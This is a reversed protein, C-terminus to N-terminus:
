SYIWFSALPYFLSCTIRRPLKWISSLLSLYASSSFLQVADLSSIARWLLEGDRHPHSALLKIFARSRHSYTLRAPVSLGASSVNDVFSSVTSSCRVESHVIEGVNARLMEVVKEQILPLHILYRNKDGTIIAYTLRRLSLARGLM